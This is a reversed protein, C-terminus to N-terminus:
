VSYKLYKIIYKYKSKFKNGTKAFQMKNYFLTRLISEHIKKYLTIEDIKDLIELKIKKRNNNNKTKINNKNEKKIQNKNKVDKDLKQENKLSIINKNASNEKIQIRNSNNLFFSSSKKKILLNESLTNNNFNKENNIFNSNIGISNNLLNPINNCLDINNNNNNNACIIKMKNITDLDITNNNDKLNIFINQNINNINNNTISNNINNIINNFKGIDFMNNINRNKNKKHNIKNINNNNNFSNTGEDEKKIQENVKIINGNYNFGNMEKLCKYYDEEEKFYVFGYGKSKGHDYIIKANHISKYKHAFISYLENNTINPSLGGVYVTKLAVQYDAWNLNFTINANPLKQGKLLYLAKNAEEHSNFTIFCYSKNKNKQKDKIFKVSIPFINFFNFSNIIHSETMNPLIGGMWLTNEPNM